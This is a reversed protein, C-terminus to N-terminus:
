SRQTTIMTIKIESHESNSSLIPCLLAFFFSRPFVTGRSSRFSPLGYPLAGGGTVSIGGPGATPYRASQKDGGGKGHQM